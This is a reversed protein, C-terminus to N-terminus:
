VDEYIGEIRVFGPTEAAPILYGDTSVILAAKTECDFAVVKYRFTFENSKLVAYIGKPARIIYM